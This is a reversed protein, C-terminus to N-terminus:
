DGEKEVGGGKKAKIKEKRSRRRWKRCVRMDPYVFHRRGRVCVCAWTRDSEPPTTRKYWAVPLLLLHHYPPPFQSSSFFPLHLKPKALILVIVYTVSEIGASALHAGPSRTTNTYTRIYIYINLRQRRTYLASTTTGKGVSGDPTKPPFSGQSLSLSLSLCPFPGPPCPASLSPIFHSLALHILGSGFNIRWLPQVIAKSWSLIYRTYIYIFIYGTVNNSPVGTASWSNAFPPRWFVNDFFSFLPLM